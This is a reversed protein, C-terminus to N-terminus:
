SRGPALPPRHSEVVARAYGETQLLGPVLHAEYVCIETARAEAEFFDAIQATPTAQDFALKRAGALVGGADFLEEAAAILEANPLRRGNEIHGVYQASYHLKEAVDDQTWGREQRLRRLQQGLFELASRPEGSESGM